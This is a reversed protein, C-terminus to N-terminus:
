EDCRQVAQLRDDGARRDHEGHRNRELEEIETVGSDTQQLRHESDAPQDAAEATSTSANRPRIAVSKPTPMTSHAAGQEQDRHRRRQRNCRAVMSRSPIAWEITSM